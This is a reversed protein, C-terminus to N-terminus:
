PARLEAELSGGDPVGSGPTEAIEVRLHCTRAQGTPVSRSSSRSDQPHPLDIMIRRNTSAVRLLPQGATVGSCAGHSKTQVSPWVADTVDLQAATCDQGVLSSDPEGGCRDRWTFVTTLGADLVLDTGGDTAGTGPSNSCSNTSSVLDSSHLHQELHSQEDSGAAAATRASVNPGYVQTNNTTGPFALTISTQARAATSGLLLLAAL